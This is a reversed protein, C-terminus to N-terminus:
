GFINPNAAKTILWTARQRLSISAAVDLQCLLKSSCMLQPFPSSTTCSRNRINELLTLFIQCRNLLKFGCVITVSVM